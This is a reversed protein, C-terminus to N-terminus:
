LLLISVYYIPLLCIPILYFLLKYYRDGKPIAHPIAFCPVNHTNSLSHGEIQNPSLAM